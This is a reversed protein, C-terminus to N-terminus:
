PPISGNQDATRMVEPCTRGVSGARFAYAIEEWAKELLGRYFLVDFHEADWETDVTHSGADRVVYGIKMGPSVGLGGQMHAEVAAGELCRHAYTLRSIRRHIVMERPNASPLRQVADLYLARVEGRLLALDAVSGARGMVTLMAHQMARIFEPTDHRRAAIGRVKVSGDGLRGYYRNYAGTGDNQPLFVIWDFHEVEVPLGIERDVREKLSSVAPGQVWLSDVIGHIVTFSMEEAIAKAQMLIDRSRRTIGEHVEIRGFKANKYGTYGFCTVLMWKLIADIGAIDPDDKKLRKTIIRLKVLPDLASSLFGQRGTHGVTEPSLNSQVIISPYLSTFDIEDVNGYLGPFPQFMMGGRDAGRLLALKRTVEVDSKRFPVVIGRRVAEYVEYGSILTGPTFRSALNPSLGALRSAMLVGPLGGERYVFSQKTDILIRGDPILAGEKHEMRGYSWYSRADMTRYKGSRSFPFEIGASRAQSQLRSMWTDADPMLIVDPDHAAVLACLDALVSRNTGTLRDSTAGPDGADGYALQIETCLASRSPNDAIRIEMCRLPHVFSTSFRTGGAGSCPFIDHEAMFRQDRRVDVNFFQATHCSQEEIAEAIARGGFIRYGPFEGFITRFTCECAGFQEELVGIMEHHGVPDPLHLFFPPDYACHMKRTIEGERYWLDVGDGRNASDLIWMLARGGRVRIRSRIRM